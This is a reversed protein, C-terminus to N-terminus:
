ERRSTKPKTKRRRMRISAAISLPFGQDQRYEGVGGIRAGAVDAEGIQPEV